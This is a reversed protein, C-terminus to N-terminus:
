VGLRKKLREILRRLMSARLPSAWKLANEASELRQADTMTPYRPPQPVESIEGRILMALVSLPTSPAIRYKELLKCVKDCYAIPNNHDKSPAYISIYHQMTLDEYPIETGKIFRLISNAVGIIKAHLDYELANLGAQYSTFVIFNGTYPNRLNGPNNNRFSMAGPFWGEIERHALALDRLFNNM